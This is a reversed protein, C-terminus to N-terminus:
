SEYTNSVQQTGQQQPRHQQRPHRQDRQDGQQVHHRGDLRREVGRPRRDQTEHHRALAYASAAATSWVVNRRIITTPAAAPLSSIDNTPARDARPMSAAM